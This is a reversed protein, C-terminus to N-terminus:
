EMKYEVNPEGIIDSIFNLGDAKKYMKLIPQIAEEIPAFDGDLLKNFYIALTDSDEYALCSAEFFTQYGDGIFVISDSNIILRYEVEPDSLNLLYKGYWNNSIKKNKIKEIIKEYNERKDRETCEEKGWCEECPQEIIKFKSVFLSDVYYYKGVISNNRYKTIEIIRNITDFYQLTIKEKDRLYIYQGNEKSPNFYSLYMGEFDRSYISDHKIWYIDINADCPQIIVQGSDTPTLLLWTGDFKFDIKNKSCSFLIVGILVVVTKRM